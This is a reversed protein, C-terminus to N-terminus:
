LGVSENRKLGMKFVWKALFYLVFCWALGISVVFISKQFSYKELFIMAPQYFVFAFPNYELPIPFLFLPIMMGSSLSFITRYINSLGSYRTTWFVICAFLFNMSHRIFYAIPLCFLLIVVTRFDSPFFIFDQILFLLFLSPIMLLFSSAIMGKGIFEFFSYWFYKNPYMLRSIIKGSFILNSMEQDLWTPILLKFFYGFWLYSLIFNAELVSDRATSNLYWIFIILSQTLFGDLSFFTSDVRYNTQLKFHYVILYWWKYNRGLLKEMLTPTYTSIM